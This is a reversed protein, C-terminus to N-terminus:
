ARTSAVRPHRNRDPRPRDPASVLVATSGAGMSRDAAPVTACARTVCLRASHVVDPSRCAQGAHHLLFWTTTPSDRCCAPYFLAESTNVADRFDDSCLLYTWAGCM